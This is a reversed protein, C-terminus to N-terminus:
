HTPGAPRGHGMRLLDEVLGEYAMALMLYEERLQPASAVQAQNRAWAAKAVFAEIDLDNYYTM